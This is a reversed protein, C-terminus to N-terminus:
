EEGQARRYGRSEILYTMSGQDLGITPTEGVFFSIAEMTILVAEGRVRCAIPARWDRPDQVAKFVEDLQGRTFGYQSVVMANLEAEIAAERAQIEADTIM